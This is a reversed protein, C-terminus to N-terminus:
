DRFWSDRVGCNPNSNCMDRVVDRAERAKTIANSKEQEVKALTAVKADHQVKFYFAGFAAIIACVAIIYIIYKQFYATILTIM